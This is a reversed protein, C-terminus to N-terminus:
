GMAEAIDAAQQRKLHQQRVYHDTTSAASHGGVAMSGTRGHEAEIRELAAHRLQYPTWHPTDTVGCAWAVAARLNDPTMSAAQRSAGPRSWGPSFLPVQDDAAAHVLPGLYSRAMPGMPISRDGGKHAQKHTDPLYFLHGQGDVRLAARTMRCLEGPRAASYYLVWVLCAPVPDLADAVPQVDELPVPEIPPREAAQSRGRRLNDVSAWSGVVTDPMMDRTVCWRAWRRLKQTYSNITGRTLGDAICGQRIAELHIARLDAPKMGGYMALLRQCASRLYRAEGTPRGDPHRYYGDAHQLYLGVAGAVTKADAQALHV